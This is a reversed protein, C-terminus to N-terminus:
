SVASVAVVAAVRASAAYGFRCRTWSRPDLGGIAQRVLEVAADMEASRDEDQTKKTKSAVPVLTAVPM